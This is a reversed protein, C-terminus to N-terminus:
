SGPAHSRVVALTAPTQPGVDYSLPSLQYGINWFSIGAMQGSRLWSYTARFYAAQGILPGRGGNSLYWHDGAQLIGWEVDIVPKGVSRCYQAVRPVINIM